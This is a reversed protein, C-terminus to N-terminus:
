RLIWAISATLFMAATLPPRDAQPPGGSCKMTEEQVHHAHCAAPAARYAAAAAAPPDCRKQRLRVDVLGHRHFPSACRCAASALVLVTRTTPVPAVFIDRVEAAADGVQKGDSGNRNALRIKVLKREPPCAM